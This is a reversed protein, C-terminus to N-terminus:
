SERELLSGALLEVRSSLRRSKLMELTLLKSQKLDDEFQDVLTEALKRDIAAVNIEDNLAFSRHDFNTSGFVCWREDVVMIKAHIMAPQYEFIKAGAELLHRSDHRSVRRIAPHDIHPGAVLIRVKVGRESAEELAHRASRDPLFYPTTIVINKKASKILAQFLIRAHTGGGSPTSSVVLAPVGRHGGQFEFQKHGTLIQGSAELWNESFTSILGGVADGQLHFVTDRWPPGQRTEMMWHDAVGAGGVFATHGDIILMKRHSRNNAFQWTNWRLPHYWRMQGGAAKLEEFYSTELQLVASPM